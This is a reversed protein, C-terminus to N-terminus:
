NNSCAAGILYVGRSLVLIPALMWPLGIYVPYPFILTNLASGIVCGFFSYVYGFITAVKSNNIFIQLFAASSIQAITWGLFLTWLIVWNTGTFLVIHFVYKGFIFFLFASSLSIIFNFVFFNIWYYRMCLGNMKM